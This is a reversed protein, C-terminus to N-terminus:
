EGGAALAAAIRRTNVARGDMHYDILARALTRTERLLGADFEGACMFARVAAASWVPADGQRAPVLEGERLAYSAASADSVTPGWGLTALLKREFRRLAAERERADLLGLREITEVYIPFLAPHPDERAAFRMLLENVYFGSILGEPSPQLTGFWEVRILNKVEGTGSWTLKLLCFAQLLGRYQASPRNAGKALLVVRGYRATFAEVLLSAESYPRTHLVLAPEDAVSKRPMGAAHARYFVDSLSSPRELSSGATRKTM